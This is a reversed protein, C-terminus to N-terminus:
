VKMIHNGRMSVSMSDHVACVCLLPRLPGCEAISLLNKLVLPVQLELVRHVPDLWWEHYTPHSYQDTYYDDTTNDSHM